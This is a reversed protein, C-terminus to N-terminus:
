GEAKCPLCVPIGGARKRYNVKRGDRVITKWKCCTGCLFHKPTGTDPSFYTTRVTPNVTAFKAGIATLMAQQRLRRREREKTSTLPMAPAMPLDPVADNPKGLPIDVVEAGLNAAIVRMIDSKPTKSM